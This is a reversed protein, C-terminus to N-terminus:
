LSFSILSLSPVPDIHRPECEECLYNDADGKVRMCDTHQWTQLLYMYCRVPTRM